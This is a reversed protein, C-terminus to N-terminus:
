LKIKKITKKICLYSIIKLRGFIKTYFEPEKVKKLSFHALRQQFEGM